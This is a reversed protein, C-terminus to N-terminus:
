ESLPFHWRDRLAANMLIFTAFGPALGFLVALWRGPLPPLGHRARWAESLAVFIGVAMFIFGIVIPGLGVVVSTGIDNRQWEPLWAFRSLIGWFIRVIFQGVIALLLARGLYRWPM